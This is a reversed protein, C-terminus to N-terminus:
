NDDDESRDNWGDGEPQRYTDPGADSERGPISESM